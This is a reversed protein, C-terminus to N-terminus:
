FCRFLRWSSLYAIPGAAQGMSGGHCLIIISDFKWFIKKAITKYVLMAATVDRSFRSNLQRILNLINQTPTM